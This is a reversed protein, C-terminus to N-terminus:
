HVAGATNENQHSGPEAKRNPKRTGHLWDPARLFERHPVGAFQRLGPIDLLTVVRGSRKILGRRELAMVTRNAHVHTVGLVNALEGQSMPLQVSEVPKGEIVSLRDCISLLFAAYTQVATTQGVSMLRDMLWIREQQAGLFMALALKPSSLFLEGFREAPIVDVVVRSSLACLTEAANALALSPGGLGDGPLHVKVIQRHGDASDVCCAVWGEILFFIEKVPDGQSRIVDHRRLRRRETAMQEIAHSQAATLRIFQGFRHLPLQAM